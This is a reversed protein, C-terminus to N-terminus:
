PSPAEGTISQAKDEALDSNLPLPSNKIHEQERLERSSVRSVVSVEAGTLANDLTTLIVEDGDELGSSVYVFDGGTRLTIVARNRVLNNDDVVAVNDGARMVYRPLAVLGPMPRGEINATVFTGVRLAAREPQNLGYPDDIRAVAF